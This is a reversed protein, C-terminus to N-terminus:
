PPPTFGNRSSAMRASSAAASLSYAKNRVKAPSASFSSRRIRSSCRASPSTSRRSQDPDQDAAAREVEGIGLRPLRGDLSPDFGVQHPQEILHDAGVEREQAGAVADPREAAVLARHEVPAEGFRDSGDLDGEGGLPLPIRQQAPQGDREVGEGAVLLRDAAQGAM